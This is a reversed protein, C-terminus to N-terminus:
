LPLELVHRFNKELLALLTGTKGRQEARHVLNQAATSLPAGPLDDSILSGLVYFWLVGVEALNLRKAIREALEAPPPVPLPMAKVAESGGQLLAELFSRTRVDLTEELLVELLAAIYTRGVEYEGAREVTLLASMAASLASGALDMRATLREGNPVDRLLLAMVQARGAPAAWGDLACVTDAVRQLDRLRLRETPM